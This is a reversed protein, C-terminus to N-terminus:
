PQGGMMPDTPVAPADFMPQEPLGPIQMPQHAAQFRRDLTTAKAVQEKPSLNKLAPWRYPRQVMRAYQDALEADNTPAALAQAMEPHAHVIELAAPNNPDLMEPPLGTTMIQQALQNTDQVKPDAYAWMADEKAQSVRDSAPPPGSRAVIQDKIKAFSTAFQEALLDAPSKPSQAM